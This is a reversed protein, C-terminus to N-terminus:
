IVPLRPMIFSRVGSQWGTEWAHICPHCWLKFYSQNVLWTPWRHTQSRKQLYDISTQIIPCQWVDPRSTCSNFTQVTVSSLHCTCRRRDRFSHTASRTYRLKKRKSQVLTVTCAVIEQVLHRPLRPMICTRNYGLKKTMSTHIVECRLTANIRLSCPDIM